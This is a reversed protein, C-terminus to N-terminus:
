KAGKKAKTAKKKSAKKKTAKKKTSKKPAAIAKAATQEAAKLEKAKNKIIDMASKIKLATSASVEIEDKEFTSLLSVAAESDGFKVKEEVRRMLQQLGRIKDYHNEIVEVCADTLGPLGKYLRKAIRTELNHGEDGCKRITTCLKERKKETDKILQQFERVSLDLYDDMDFHTELNSLEDTAKQAKKKLAAQENLLKTTEADILQVAKRLPPLQKYIEKAREDGLMDLEESTRDTGRALYYSAGSRLTSDLDRYKKNIEATHKASMFHFRLARDKFKSATLAAIAIAAQTRQKYTKIFDHRKSESWQNLEGNDNIALAQTEINEATM